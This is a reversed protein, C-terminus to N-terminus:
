QISAMSASLMQQITFNITDGASVVMPGTSAAGFGGIPVAVIRVTGQATVDRSLKFTGENFSMVMGIRRADGGPTVAFIDFTQDNHSDVHLMVPAIPPGEAARLSACGTLTAVTVAALLTRVVRIGLM